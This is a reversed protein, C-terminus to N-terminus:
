FGRPVRTFCANCITSALISPGKPHPLSVRSHGRLPHINDWWYRVIFCSIEGANFLANRVCIEAHLIEVKDSQVCVALLPLVSSQWSYKGSFVYWGRWSGLQAGPLSVSGLVTYRPFASHFPCTCAHHVSGCVSGWVKKVKSGQGWSKEHAPFIALSLFM